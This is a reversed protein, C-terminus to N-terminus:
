MLLVYPLPYPIIQFAIPFMNSFVNPVQSGMPFLLFGVDGGERWLFFSPGRPHMIGGENPDHYINQKTSTNKAM